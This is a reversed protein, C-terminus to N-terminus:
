GANAVPGALRRRTRRPPLGRASRLHQRLLGLVHTRIDRPLGPADDLTQALQVLHALDAVDLSPLAHTQPAGAETWERVRTELWQGVTLGERRAASTVANRTETAVAKITWPAILDVADDAM